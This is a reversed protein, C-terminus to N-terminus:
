GPLRDHLWRFIADFVADREPENLVEHYLGPFVHKTKDESGVREILLDTAKPSMVLDGGGHLALLPITIEGMRRSLRIQTQLLEHGTRARFGGRYLLPDANDRAVMEDNRTFVGHQLPSLPLRPALKALVGAMALALKGANEPPLLSAASTVCLSYDSQYRLLQNLALLGGMSHGLLVRRVGPTERAARETLLHIDETVADLGEMDAPLRASHGHGRLDHIYAAYGAEAFRSLTEVYRGSHEGFGHILIVLARPAPPVVRRFFLEREQHGTFWGEQVNM